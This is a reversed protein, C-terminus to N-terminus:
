DADAPRRSPLHPTTWTADVGGLRRSRYEADIRQAARRLEQFEPDGARARWQEAFQKVVPHGVPAVM